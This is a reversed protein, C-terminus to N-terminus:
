SPAPDTEVARMHECIARIEVECSLFMRPDQICTYQRRMAKTCMDSLQRLREVRPDRELRLTVELRALM